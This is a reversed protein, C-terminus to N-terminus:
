WYKVVMNSTYSPGGLVQVAGQNLINTVGFNADPQGIIEYGTGKVEQIGKYIKVHGVNVGGKNINRVQLYM